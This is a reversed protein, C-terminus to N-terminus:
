CKQTQNWFQNRAHSDRLVIKKLLNSLTSESPNAGDFSEWVYNNAKRSYGQFDSFIEHVYKNKFNKACVVSFKGPTRFGPRGTFNSWTKKLKEDEPFSHFRITYTQDTNCNLVIAIGWAQKCQSIMYSILVFGALFLTCM